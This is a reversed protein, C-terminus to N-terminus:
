IEWFKAFLLNDEEDYHLNIDTGFQNSLSGGFHYSNNGYIFKIGIVGGYDLYLIRDLLSKIQSWDSESCSVGDTDGDIFASAIIDQIATPLESFSGVPFKSVAEVGTGASNVALVKGANAESLPLLPNDEEDRLAGLGNDLYLQIGVELESVTVINDDVSILDKMQNVWAVEEPTLETAEKQALEAFKKAVAKTEEVLITNTINGKPEQNVIAEQSQEGKVLEAKAETLKYDLEPM